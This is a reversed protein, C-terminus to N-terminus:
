QALAGGDMAIAVGNISRGHDSALYVILAAIEDPSVVHSGGRGRTFGTTSVQEIVMEPAGAPRGITGPCVANCRIGREGYTAAINETLGILGFKSAVYAPGARGGRLGAVSATNIIVGAGQKLMIPLARKCLLLPGTLNVDLVRRWVSEEIEDVPVVEILAANNCLVDLRSGAAAMAADAGEATSIDAKVIEVGPVQRQVDELRQSDIDVAVVRAGGAQFLAVIRRGVNGGGATVVVTRGEFSSADV